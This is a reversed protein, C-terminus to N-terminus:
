PRPAELAKRLAEVAAEPSSAVICIGGAREIGAVWSSGFLDLEGKSAIVFGVFRAGRLSFGCIDVGGIPANPRVRPRGGEYNGWVTALKSANVAELVQQLLEAPVVRDSSM